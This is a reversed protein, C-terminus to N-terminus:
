SPNQFNLVGKSKIALDSNVQDLSFAGASNMLEEDIQEISLGHLSSIDCKSVQQALRATLYRMTM